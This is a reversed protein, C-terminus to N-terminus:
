IYKVNLGFQPVILLIVTASMNLMVAQYHTQGGVLCPNFSHYQSKGHSVRCMFKKMILRQAVQMVVQIDDTSRFIVEECETHSIVTAIPLPQRIGFRGRVQRFELLQIFVCM